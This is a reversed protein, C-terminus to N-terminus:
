RTDVWRSTQAVRDIMQELEALEQPGAYYDEITKTLNRSQVTIFKSPMDSVMQFLTDKTGDPRTRIDTKIKYENKLSFFKIKVIFRFLPKVSDVPISYVRKGEVKVFRDGQYIITGDSFVQVSYSPCEGYCVTRQLMVSNVDEASSLIIQLILSIHLLYQIM